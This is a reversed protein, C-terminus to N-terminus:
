WSYQGQLEFGGGGASQLSGIPTDLAFGIKFREKFKLQAVFDMSQVRLGQAVDSRRHGLGCAFAPTIDVLLSAGYSIQEDSALLYQLNPRLTRGSALSLTAGANLYVFTGLSRDSELGTIEVLNMELVDPVAIGVYWHKHYAFVGAGANGRFYNLPPGATPDAFELTFQYFKPEVGIAIRWEDSLPIHYAYAFKASVAKFGGISFNSTALGLGVRQNASQGRFRIGQYQVVASGNDVASRRLFGQVTPGDESGTFGPNLHTIDDFFQTFQFDFQGYLDCIGVVVLLLLGIRRILAM